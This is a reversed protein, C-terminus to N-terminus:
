WLNRYKDVTRISYTWTNKPFSEIMFILPDKFYRFGFKFRRAKIREESRKMEKLFRWARYSHILM